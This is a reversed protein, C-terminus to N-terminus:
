IAENLNCSNGPWYVNSDWVFERKESLSHQLTEALGAAPLLEAEPQQGCCCTICLSLHHINEATPNRSMRSQEPKTGWQNGARGPKTHRAQRSGAFEALYTWFVIFASDPARGAM